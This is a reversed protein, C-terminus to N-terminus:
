SYSATVFSTWATGVLPGVERVETGSEHVKVVVIGRRDGPPQSKVPYPCSLYTDLLVGPFLQGLLRTVM